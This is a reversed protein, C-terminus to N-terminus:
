WANTKLFSKKKTGQTLLLVFYSIYKYLVPRTTLLSQIHFLSKALKESLYFLRISFWKQLFHRDPVSKQQGLDSITLHADVM